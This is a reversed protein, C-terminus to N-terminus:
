QVGSVETPTVPERRPVPDYGSGGGPRCRAIRRAGLWAGRVAGYTSIAEYTYHSCSPDYRCQRPRTASWGQYVRLVGRMLRAAPTM